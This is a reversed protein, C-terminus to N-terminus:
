RGARGAARASRDWALRIDLGERRFRQDIYIMGPLTARVPITLPLTLAYVTCLQLFWLPNALQIRDAYSTLGGLDGWTLALQAVGFGFPATVAVLVSFCLTTVWLGRVRGRRGLQRARRLARRVSLDELAAAAPASPCWGSTVPIIVLAALYTVAVTWGSQSGPDGASDLALLAFVIGLALRPLAGLLGLATLTVAPGRRGVRDAATTTPNAPAQGATDVYRRVSPAFWGALVTVAFGSIGLLWMTQAATLAYLTAATRMGHRAVDGDIVKDFWWSAVVAAVGLLTAGTMGWGFVRAEVNRMASFAADVTELVTLPRLPIPRRGVAAHRESPLGAAPRGPAGVPAADAPPILGALPRGVAGGRGPDPASWPATSDTM